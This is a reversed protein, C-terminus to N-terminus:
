SKNIILIADLFLLPFVAELPVKGVCILVEKTFCLELFDIEAMRFDCNDDDFDKDAIAEM